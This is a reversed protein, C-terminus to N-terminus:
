TYSCVRNKYLSMKFYEFLYHVGSENPNKMLTKYSKRAQLGFAICDLTKNLLMITPCKISYRSPLWQQFLHIEGKSIEEDAIQIAIGCGATGFDVAIFHTYQKEDAMRFGRTEHFCSFIGRVWYDRLWAVKLAPRKDIDQNYPSM